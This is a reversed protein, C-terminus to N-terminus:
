VRGYRYTIFLLDMLMHMIERPKFATTLKITRLSPAEAIKFGYKLALLLLEVDFAYRKVYVKPVITDLVYRKIAKAGTQTDSLKLGTLLRVLTNYSKSLFKRLRSVVTKSLPHWKNTIVVDADAERMVSLLVPIQEIPIDLDADFLVIVDGRSYRYGYIFAAGKGSNRNYGVIRVNRLSSATRLAVERTLDSSGDDVVVIECRIGRSLFYDYALRISEGIYSEGNYVPMVISVLRFM